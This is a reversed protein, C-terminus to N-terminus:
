RTGLLLAERALERAVPSLVRKTAALTRVEGLETLVAIPMTWPTAVLYDRVSAGESDRWGVASLTDALEARDIPAGITTAAHLLALLMEHAPYGDHPYASIARRIVGWLVTPDSHCRTGLKTRVLHGRYKRILGLSQLSQRFEHVPHADAERNVGRVWVRMSPIVDAAQKVLTPPLFGASTLKIGDGATHDLFWIYPALAELREADSPPRRRVLLDALRMVLRHGLETGYLRDVMDVLRGDVGATLLQFMLSDFAANLTDPDFAEPDDLLRALSAGDARGGSDDPPAARRGDIMRIPPDDRRPARTSVLTLTVAWHDGYDYVYHLEDDPTGLVTHLAVRREPFTSDDDTESEEYEGVFSVLDDGFLSSDYTFRHLHTGNWAFAVQLVEHLIDLTLDSRIEFERWILPDSRDLEARIRLIRTNRTLPLTLPTSEEVGSIVEAFREDLDDDPM